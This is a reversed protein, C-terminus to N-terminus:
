GALKNAIRSWMARDIQIDLKLDEWMPGERGKSKIDALLEDCKTIETKATNWLMSVQEDTLEITRM